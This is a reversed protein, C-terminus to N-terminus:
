KIKTQVPITNVQTAKPEPNQFILKGREFDEALSGIDRVDMGNRRYRWMNHNSIVRALNYPQQIEGCM